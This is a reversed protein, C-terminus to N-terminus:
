EILGLNVSSQRLKSLGERHKYKDLFMAIVSPTSDTNININSYFDIFINSGLASTHLVDRSDRLAGVYELLCFLLFLSLFYTAYIFWYFRIRINSSAPEWTTTEFPNTLLASTTPQFTPQPTPQFTPQYSPVPTLYGDNIYIGDNYDVAAM